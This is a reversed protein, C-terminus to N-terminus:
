FLAGRFLILAGRDLVAPALTVARADTAAKPWFIWTGVAAAALGAAVGYLVESAVYDTQQTHVDGVLQTCYDSPNAYCYSDSSHQSRLASATSAASRSGLALVLGTVASAVAGTALAGAVVLKGMARTRGTGPTPSPPSGDSPPTRSDAPLATADPAAVLFSARSTFGSAANVHLSHTTGAFVVAVEHDGPALELPALPATGVPTGDVAVQAGAPAEVEVSAPKPKEARAEGSGLASVLSLSMLVRRRM